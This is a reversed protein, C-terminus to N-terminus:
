DPWEVDLGAEQFWQDLLQRNDVLYDFGCEPTWQRPHPCPVIARGMQDFGKAILIIYKEDPAGSSDRYIEREVRVAWGTVDADTFDSHKGEIIRGTKGVPIMNQEM